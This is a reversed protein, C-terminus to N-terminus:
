MGEIGRNWVDLSKNMKKGSLFMMLEKFRRYGYETASYWTTPADSETNSSTTWETSNTTSRTSTSTNASQIFLFIMMVCFGCLWLEIIIGEDVSDSETEEDGM